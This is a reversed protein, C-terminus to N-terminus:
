AAKMFAGHRTLRSSQFLEFSQNFNARKRTFPSWQHKKQNTNQFSEMWYAVLSLQWRGM